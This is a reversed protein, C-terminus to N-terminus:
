ILPFVQIRRLDFTVRFNGDGNVYESIQHPLLMIFSLLLRILSALVEKKLIRVVHPNKGCREQGPHNKEGVRQWVSLKNFKKKM